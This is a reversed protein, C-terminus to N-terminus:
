APEKTPMFEPPVNRLEQRSSSYFSSRSRKICFRSHRPEWEFRLPVRSPEGVHRVDLMGTPTKKLIVMRSPKSENGNYRNVEVLDCQPLSADEEVQADRLSSYAEELAKQAVRRAEGASAFAEQASEVNARAAILKASEKPKKM